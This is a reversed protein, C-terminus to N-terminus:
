QKAIPNFLKTSHPTPTTTAGNEEKNKLIHFGLSGILMIFLYRCTHIMAVFGVDFGLAIAILSIEPISGPALALFFLFYHKEFTTGLGVSIVFVISTIAITFIISARTQEKFESINSIALKCAIVAGFTIMAVTKIVEPMPTEIVGYHYFSAAILMPFIIDGGAVSCKKAFLGSLLTLAIVKWLALDYTFDFAALISTDASVQPHEIFYAFISFVLILTVMRVTHILAIKPFRHGLNDSLSFLFTLGGPLASMFSDLTTFNSLRKFYSVGFFTVALVFIISFTLTALESPEINSATNGVSAGIAVGLFIRVWRSFEKPPAKIFPLKKCFFVILLSGLLWPIPLGLSHAIAGGLTGILLTMFIAM